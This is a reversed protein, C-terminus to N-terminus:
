CGGAFWANLFSFIDGVQPSAVGDGAFKAYPSNAFWANLYAFVDGVDIGGLKDFDAFCCPTTSSTGCSTATSFVVGVGSLPSCSAQPVSQACTAGRCCVGATPACAGSCASFAGQWTGGFLQCVAQTVSTCSGTTTCCAGVPQPCSVSGCSSSVGQFTGGQAVCAPSSLNAVCAGSPLCCAGLPCTNNVTCAVGPIFSGALQICTSQELTACGGTGTCCAGSPEPCPSPTCSSGNGQFSGGACSASTTITCAGTTTNCCAGTPQPCPNPSCVTNDGQYTGGAATCNSTTQLTCGGTSAVCCAGQFVGACVSAVTTIQQLVDRSPRCGGFGTSLNSFRTFGSPCGGACAIASLWNRSLFTPTAPNSTGTSCPSVTSGETCLFANNCFSVTSCATAGPQNHRDIKVVISVLGTGSTGNVIMRDVPDATADVSFQVKVASANPAGGLLLTLDDCPQVGTVRPLSIDPPLGPDVNPDASTVTFVLSSGSQGPEGDWVEITYGMDVNAGIGTAPTAAFFEVVQVEIPFAENQPTGPNPDAIAYTSGFGEGEVMGLQLTVESGVNISDFCNAVSQVVSPCGGPGRPGVPRITSSTTRTTPNYVIRQTAFSEVRASVSKAADAARADPSAVASGLAAGVLLAAVSLGRGACRGNFMRM